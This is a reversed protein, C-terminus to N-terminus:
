FSRRGLPGVHLLGLGGVQGGGGGIRANDSL